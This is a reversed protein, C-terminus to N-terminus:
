RVIVEYLLEKEYFSHDVQYERDPALDLVVRTKMPHGWHVAIRIRRIFKGNVDIRDTSGGAYDAQYFDFVVRPPPDAELVFSKPLFRGNLFILVKEENDPTVVSQISRIKYQDAAAPAVAPPLILFLSEHVWGTQGDATKVHLWKGRDQGPLIDVHAGRSITTIIAADPHPHSRVHCRSVKVLAGSATSAHAGTHEAVFPSLMWISVFMM